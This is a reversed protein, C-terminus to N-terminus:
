EDLKELIEDMNDVVHQFVEADMGKNKLTQDNDDLFQRYELVAPHNNWKVVRLQTYTSAGEVRFEKIVKIVKCKVATKAM